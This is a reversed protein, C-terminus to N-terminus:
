IKAESKDALRELAQAQREIIADKFKERARYEDLVWKPILIGLLLAVVILGLLGYRLWETIIPDM